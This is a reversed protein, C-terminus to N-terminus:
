VSQRGPAGFVHVEKTLTLSQHSLDLLEQNQRKLSAPNVLPPPLPLLVRRLRGRLPEARPSHLTGTAM